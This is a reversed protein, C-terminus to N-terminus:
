NMRSDVHVNTGFKFLIEELRKVNCECIVRVCVLSVRFMIGGAVTGPVSVCTLASTLVCLFFLNVLVSFNLWVM